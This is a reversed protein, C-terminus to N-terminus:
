RLFKATMTIAAPTITGATPNTEECTLTNTAPLCQLIIGTQWTAPLTQAQCSCPTSASAGPAVIATQAQTVGTAVASGASTTFSIFTDALSVNSYDTVFAAITASTAQVIWVAYSNATSEGATLAPAGTISTQVLTRSGTGDQMLAVTYYTGVTMGALTVSTVNATMNEICALATATFTCTPTAGSVQLPATTGWPVGALAPASLGLAMLAALFLTKIYTKM